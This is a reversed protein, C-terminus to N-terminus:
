RARCARIAQRIRGVPVARGRGIGECRQGEREWARRNGAIEPWFPYTRCQVPRVTYISCRDQADLFICRGTAGSALVLQGDALRHLYRRRFWSRSLGRQVRIREAEQPTLFVYYDGPMACCSGCRTCSFHLARAEFFPRM